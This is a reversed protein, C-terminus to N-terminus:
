VVLRKIYENDEINLTATIIKETVMKRRSDRTMNISLTIIEELIRLLIDKNSDTVSFGFGLMNDDEIKDIRKIEDVPKTNILKLLYNRM